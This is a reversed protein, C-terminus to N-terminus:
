HPKEDIKWQALTNMCLSNLSTAQQQTNSETYCRLEPANGSPRLHIIDNNDFYIRLGDIINITIPEGAFDFQMKIAHLNEETNGSTMNALKQQSLDTPFNKLSDSHTFRHPLTNILESITLQKEQALLMVSMIVITADRTPLPSLLNDNKELNSAQLFGGNAEYGVVGRRGELKSMASIVYPSGIKTRILQEFLACKEVASNSSVPTVVVKANLYQACLIGVIDGRLWHGNEDSILPRDGDGDTSIICDFHYKEIWQKALLEDEPRIAETDVSIFKDSRALSTVTAGLEQLIAKLCDRSVSSHEYLGIQKGALCHTAFFDLFRNKYHIDAEFSVAPLANSQVFNGVESFKREPIVVFQKSIALEDAKLIEGKPTNFKIGNRDDAIHSGTVMISATKKHLGYLAVAPSPINGCNIAVLGFDLIATAVGKMIRDTSQRLDGAIYISDGDCALNCSTLYQLFATVYLWCVQDTMGVVLGRVGSTGFQVGSTAMLEDIKIQRTM